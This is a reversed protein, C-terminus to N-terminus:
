RTWRILHTGKKPYVVKKIIDKGELEEFAPIMEIRIWDRMRKRRSGSLSYLKEASYKADGNFTLVFGYLWKAFGKNLSLRVDMNIFQHEDDKFLKIFDHNIDFFYKGNKKSYGSKGIIAGTAWEEEPVGNEELTLHGGLRKFSEKIHKLTGGAVRGRVEKQFEKDDVFVRSYEHRGTESKIMLVNETDQYISLMKIACLHIDHDAQDLQVGSYSLRLQEDQFITLDTLGKRRGRGIASFLPSRLIMKPSASSNGKFKLMLGQDYWMDLQKAQHSFVYGIMDEIAFQEVFKKGEIHFLKLTEIDEPNLGTSFYREKIELAQQTTVSDKTINPKSMKLETSTIKTSTIPSQKRLRKNRKKLSVKLRKILDILLM